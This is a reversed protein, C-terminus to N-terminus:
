VHARGIESDVAVAFSDQLHLRSYLGSDLDVVFEFPPFGTHTTSRPPLIWLAELGVVENVMAEVVMVAAAAAVAGQEVEPPLGGVAAPPWRRWRQALVSAPM